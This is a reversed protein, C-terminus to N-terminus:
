SPMGKGPWGPWTPINIEEKLKAVGGPGRSSSPCALLGGEEHWPLPHRQARPHGRPRSRHGARQLQHLKTSLGGSAPASAPSPGPGRQEAPRRFPVEEGRVGPCGPRRKPAWPRRWCRWAPKTKNVANIAPDGGSARSCATGTPPLSCRMACRAALRGKHQRRPACCSTPSILNWEHPPVYSVQDHLVHRLPLVPGGGGLVEAQARGGTRRRTEDILDFLRPLRRVPERLPPLRPLHQAGAWNRSPTKRRTTSSRTRGTWRIAPPAQPLGGKVRGIVSSMSNEGNRRPSPGACFGGSGAGILQQEPQGPDEPVQQRPQARGQCPRPVLRRDRRLRRRPRDEGHGPVHRNYEHTEGAISAKLNDSTGGIPLGTAPDGCVELYEWTATAHGTEGEATSRFVAAVDNYGEVDAKAAFYLYRRNAQSEGAFAAKLNGETKSGKLAAM